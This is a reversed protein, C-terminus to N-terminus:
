SLSECRQGITTEVTDPHDQQEAGVGDAVKYAHRKRTAALRGSPPDDRGLMASVGMRAFVLPGGHNAAQLLVHIVAQVKPHKQDNPPLAAIYDGAERLTRLVGGERLPIPEDFEADWGM